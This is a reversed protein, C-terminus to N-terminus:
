SDWMTTKQKPDSVFQCWGKASINKWKFIPHIKGKKESIKGDMPPHPRGDLGHCPEFAEAERARREEMAHLRRAVEKGVGKKPIAEKDRPM